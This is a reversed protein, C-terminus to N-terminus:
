RAAVAGTTHTQIFNDLWAQQHYSLNKFSVACCTKGSCPTELQAADEEEDRITETNFKYSISSAHATKGDFLITIQGSGEPSANKHKGLNYSFLLGGQSIDKVPGLKVSDSGMVALIGEKVTFREHKRRETRM